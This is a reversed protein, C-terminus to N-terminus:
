CSVAVKRPFCPSISPPRHRSPAEPKPYDYRSLQEASSSIKTRLDEGSSPRLISEPAIRLNAAVATSFFFVTLEYTEM